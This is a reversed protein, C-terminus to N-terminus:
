FKLNLEKNLIYVTGGVILATIGRDNTIGIRMQIIYSIFLLVILIFTMLISQKTNDNNMSNYLLVMIVFLAIFIITAKIIELNSMKYEVM